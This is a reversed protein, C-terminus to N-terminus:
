DLAVGGTVKVSMQRDFPGEWRNQVPDDDLERDCVNADGKRTQERKVFAGTAISKARKKGRVNGISRSVCLMMDLKLIHM